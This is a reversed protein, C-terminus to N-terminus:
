TTTRTSCSTATSPMPAEAIHGAGRQHGHDFPRGCEAHSHHANLQRVSRCRRDRCRDGRAIPQRESRRHRDHRGRPRVRRVQGTNGVSVEGAPTAGAIPAGATPTYAATALTSGDALSNLGIAVSGAHSSVAGQGIARQEGTTAGCTSQCPISPAPTTDTRPGVTTGHQRQDGTGLNTVTNGFQDREQEDHLAPQRQRCRHALPMAPRARPSRDPGPPGLPISNLNTRTSNDYKVASDAVDQIAQQASFLQSGNVGDTSAQEVRGAAVNQLQREAGPTGFSVTGIPASGAYTYATGNITAGTVPTQAAIAQAGQGIAVSNAVTVSSANGIATGNAGSVASNVGLVVANAATANSNNGVVIANPASTAKSAIGFVMADPSGLDAETYNGGIAISFAGRATTQAGIAISDRGFALTEGGIALQDGGFVGDGSAVASGGIAINSGRISVGASSLVTPAKHM